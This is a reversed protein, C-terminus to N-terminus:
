KAGMATSMLCSKLSVSGAAREFFASSAFVIPALNWIFM